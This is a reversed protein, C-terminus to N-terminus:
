SIHCNKINWMIPNRDGKNYIQKREGMQCMTEIVFLSWTDCPTLWGSATVWHSCQKVGEKVKGVSKLTNDQHKLGTGGRCQLGGVVDPTVVSSSAWEHGGPGQWSHEISRKLHWMPWMSHLPTTDCPDCPTYHHLTVHTVHPTITYSILARVHSPSLIWLNFM